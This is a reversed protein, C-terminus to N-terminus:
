KSSVWALIGMAIAGFIMPITSFVDSHTVAGCASHMIPNSTLAYLMFSIVCLLLALTFGSRLQLYDQLYIFILYTCLGLTVLSLLLRILFLPVSSQLAFLLNLSLLNNALLVAFVSFLLIGVTLAAAFLGQANNKEKHM